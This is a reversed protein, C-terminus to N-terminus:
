GKGEIIRILESPKVVNTKLSCKKQRSVLDILKFDGTLFYNAGASEACWIHFADKLQNPNPRNKGQYFISDSTDIVIAERSAANNTAM